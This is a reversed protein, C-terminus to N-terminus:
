LGTWTLGSEDDDSNITCYRWEDATRNVSRSNFNFDKGSTMEVM